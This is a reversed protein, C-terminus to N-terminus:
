KQPEPILFSFITVFGCVAVYIGYDDDGLIKLIARTAYFTLSLVFVMRLSMFLSNRAIRKNGQAYETM